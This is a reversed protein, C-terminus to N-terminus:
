GRLPSMWYGLVLGQTAAAIIRLGAPLNPFLGPRLGPHTCFRGTTGRPRNAFSAASKSARSWNGRGRDQLRLAAVICGLVPRLSACDRLSTQFYGLVFDQSRAFGVRLGAPVTPLHPRARVPERGIEESVAKCGRLPSMWYGLAYARPLGASLLVLGPPAARRGAGETGSKPAGTAPNTYDGTQGIWGVGNKFNSTQLAPGGADLSHEM